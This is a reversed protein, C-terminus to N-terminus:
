LNKTIIQLLEKQTMRKSTDFTIVKHGNEKAEMLCVQFIEADLNERIKAKNYKREKLRKELTKLNSSTLVICLNILSKPLLHAVHSDIIVLEHKKKKARVLGEVKKIDIDYCKKQKNYATSIEKYYDQLDLREANLKKVLLTALTSKGTGPSGSIAILKHM